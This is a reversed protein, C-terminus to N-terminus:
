FVFLLLTQRVAAYFLSLLLVCVQFMVKKEVRKEMVETEEKPREVEKEDESVAMGNAVVGNM